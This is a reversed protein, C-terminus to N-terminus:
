HSRQGKFNCAPFNTCGTYLEGTVSSERWKLPHGCLPCDGAFDGRQSTPVHNIPHIIPFEIQKKENDLVSLPVRSSHQNYFVAMEVDRARWSTQTKATLISAYQQCFQTWNLYAEWNNEIYEEKGSIQGQPIFEKSAGYGFRSKNAKWWLSVFKDAIPYQSSRYFSLFTIPVAFGKPQFCSGRFKTFNNLSSNEALNHLNNCFNDFNRKEKMMNLLISTLTHPDDMTYIKWFCVEGIISYRSFLKAEIFSSFAEEFSRVNSGDIHTNFSPSTFGDSYQDREQFETLNAFYNYNKLATVWSSLM